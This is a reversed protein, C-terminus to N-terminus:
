GAPIKSSIWGSFILNTVNGLLKPGLVSFTVSLVGLVLSGIILPRQPSLMRLLRRSSAGFNLAKETSMGGMFRAPGHNM